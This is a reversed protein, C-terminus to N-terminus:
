VEKEDREAEKAPQAAALTLRVATGRGVESEFCLQTGHLAAIRACLALGLGSGGQQRARSKDMRYFAECLHPLDAAPVGCGTDCVCLAVCGNQEAAEVWVRGDAPTAARANQVLNYLLDVLLDADAEVKLGCAPLEPEPAGPPLARRLRRLVADLAVPGLAPPEGNLRMLAMLKGGLAELRESEHYIYQAALRRTEAQTEAGRLLDAYGLMSTVPTKLEHTFAAVFDDRARVSNELAEIKEQVAGAMEDFSASLSELEDGTHLATRRAYDGAAIKRSAAELQALPRTLRRCLYRCLLAALALLAAEAALATRLRAGRAAWVDDLMQAHVLTRVGDPLIVTGAALLVRTGREDRVLTIQPQGSGDLAKALEDQGLAAPLTSYQARGNEYVALRAPAGSHSGQYGSAWATVDGGSELTTQMAYREQEWAARAQAAAAQLDASFQRDQTWVTYVTLLAALLLTLALSLKEAFKM